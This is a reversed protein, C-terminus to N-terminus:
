SRLGEPRVKQTSPRTGGSKTSMRRSRARGRATPGYVVVVTTLLNGAAQVVRSLRRSAYSEEYYNPGLIVINGV